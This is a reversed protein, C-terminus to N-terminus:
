PLHRWTKYNVIKSITVYSVGFRKALDSYNYQGTRWLYRLEIIQAETFRSNSNNVGRPRNGRGKRDKDLMNDAQTGAWLHEPNICAPNDCTHCVQCGEPIAGNQLRYAVRHAAYPKGKWSFRGYGFSSDRVAIWNICGTQRDKSSNLYLIEELDLTDDGSEIKPYVTIGNKRPRIM